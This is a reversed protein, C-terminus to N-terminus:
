VGTISRAVAEHIVVQLRQIVMNTFGYLIVNCYDICRTIHSKCLANTPVYRQISHQQRLHYASVALDIESNTKGNRTVQQRSPRVTTM